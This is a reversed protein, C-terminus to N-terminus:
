DGGTLLNTNLVKERQSSQYRSLESEDISLILLDLKEIDELIEGDFFGGLNDILKKRQGFQRSIKKKQSSRVYGRVEETRGCDNGVRSLEGFNEDHVRKHVDMIQNQNMIIDRMLFFAQSFELRTKALLLKTKNLRPASFQQLVLSYGMETLLFGKVEKGRDTTLTTAVVENTINFKDVSEVMTWSPHSQLTEYLSITDRINRLANSHNVQFKKSLTYSDTINQNLETNFTVLEM